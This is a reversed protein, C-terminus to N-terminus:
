KRKLKFWTQWGQTMRIDEISFHKGCFNLIDMENYLYMTHTEDHYKGEQITKIKLEVTKNKLPKPKIIRTVGDINRITQKFGEESVKDYDWVDFIFYGGKKLPIHKWWYNHRVYNVVNFLATVLDYEKVVNLTSAPKLLDAKAQEMQLIDKQLISLRHESQLIMHASREIGNIITGEPYYKWYSATGCGLDLITKPEDGWEYIMDIEYAYPKDQNLDDYCKAYNEAFM